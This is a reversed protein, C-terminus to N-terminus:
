RQQAASLVVSVSARDALLNPGPQVAERRVSHASEEAQYHPVPDSDTEPGPGSGIDQGFRPDALRELLV